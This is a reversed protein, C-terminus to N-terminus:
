ISLKGSGGVDREHEAGENGRSETDSELPPFSRTVNHPPGTDDTYTAAARCLAGTSGMELSGNGCIGAGDSVTGLGEFELITDGPDKGTAREQLSNLTDSATGPSLQVRKHSSDGDDDARKRKEAKCGERAQEIIRDERTEISEEYVNLGERFSPDLRRILRIIRYHSEPEKRQEARQLISTFIPVANSSLNRLATKAQIAIVSSGPLLRELENAKDGFRLDDQNAQIDKQTRFFSRQSKAISQSKSNSLRRAAYCYRVRDHPSRNAFISLDQQFPHVIAEVGTLLLISVNIPILKEVKDEHEDEDGKYFVKVLDDYIEDLSRILDLAQETLKVLNEGNQRPGSAPRLLIRLRRDLELVLPLTEEECDTPLSEKLGKLVQLLLVHLPEPPM